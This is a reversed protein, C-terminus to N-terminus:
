PNARKIKESSEAEIYAERAARMAYVNEEVIRSLDEATLATINDSIVSPFSPNRGFVITDLTTESRIRQM